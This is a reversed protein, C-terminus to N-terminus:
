HQQDQCAWAWAFKWVCSGLALGLDEGKLKAHRAVEFGWWRCM